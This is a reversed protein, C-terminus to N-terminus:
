HQVAAETYEFEELPFQVSFRTCANQDLALRGHLQNNLLHVIRLGMSKGQWINDANEIGLGTTTCRCSVGGADWRKETKRLEPLTIFDFM